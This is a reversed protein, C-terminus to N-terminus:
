RKQDRNGPTVWWKVFGKLGKVYASYVARNKGDSICALFPLCVPMLCVIGLAAVGLGVVLAQDDDDSSMVGGSILLVTALVVFCGSCCLGCLIKAWEGATGRQRLEQWARKSGELTRWCPRLFFTRFDVWGFCRPCQIEYLIPCKDFTADRFGKRLWQWTYKDRAKQSSAAQPEPDPASAVAAATPPLPDCAEQLEAALAADSETAKQGDLPVAIWVDREELPAICDQLAGIGGGADFVVGQELGPSASRAAMPYTPCGASRLQLVREEVSGGQWRKAEEEEIEEPSCGSEHGSPDIYDNHHLIFLGKSCLKHPSCSMPVVNATARVAASATCGQCSDEFRDGLCGSVRVPSTRYYGAADCQAPGTAPSPAQGM